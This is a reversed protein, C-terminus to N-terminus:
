ELAKKNFKLRCTKHFKASYKMLIEQIGTGEDLIQHDLDMPVSGLDKFQNLNEALSIYGSGVPPKSSRAPCQLADDTATQCLVCLEWNIAYSSKPQNPTSTLAPDVLVHQKRKVSTLM